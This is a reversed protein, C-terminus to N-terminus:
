NREKKLSRESFINDWSWSSWNECDKCWIIPIRAHFLSVVCRISSSHSLSENWQWSFVDQVTLLIRVSYLVRHHTRPRRRRTTCIGRTTNWNLPETSCHSYSTHRTSRLDILQTSNPAAVSRAPRQDCLWKREREREREREHLIWVARDYHDYRRFTSSKSRTESIGAASCDVALWLRATLENSNAQLVAILKISDTPRNVHSSAALSIRLDCVTYYNHM